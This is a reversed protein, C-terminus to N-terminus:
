NLEWFSQTGTPGLLLQVMFANEKRDENGGEGPKKM